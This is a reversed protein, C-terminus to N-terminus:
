TRRLLPEKNSNVVPVTAERLSNYLGSVERQIYTEVEGAQMFALEKLVDDTFLKQVHEELLKSFKKTEINAYTKVLPTMIEFLYIWVVVRIGILNRMSLEGLSRIAALEKKLAPHVEKNQNELSVEINYIRDRMREINNGINRSRDNIQNSSTILEDVKEGVGTDLHAVAKILDDLQKRLPRLANNTAATLYSSFHAGADDFGNAKVKRATIAENILDRM